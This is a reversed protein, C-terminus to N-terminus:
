PWGISDYIDQWLTPTWRELQKILGEKSNGFAAQINAGLEDFHKYLNRVVLLYDFQSNTSYDRKKKSEEVVIHQLLDPVKGKESPWKLSTQRFGARIENQDAAVLSQLYEGKTTADWNEPYRKLAKVTFNSRVIFGSYRIANSSQTLEFEDYCLKIIKQVPAWIIINSVSAGLAEAISIKGVM